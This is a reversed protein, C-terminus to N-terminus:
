TTTQPSVPYPNNHILFQTLRTPTALQLEPALTESVTYFGYARYQAFFFGHDFGYARLMKLVDCFVYARLLKEFDDYIDYLESRELISREPRGPPGSAMVM